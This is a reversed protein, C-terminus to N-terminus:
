PLNQAQTAMNYKALEEASIDASTKEAAGSEYEWAERFTRDSLDVDDGVIEYKTGTPLNKNALRIMEAENASTDAPYFVAAAGNSGEFILKLAM